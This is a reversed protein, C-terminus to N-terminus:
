FDGQRGEAEAETEHPADHQGQQEGSQAQGHGDEEGHRGQRHQHHQGADGHGHTSRENGQRKEKRKQHDRHEGDVPADPRGYEHGHQRRISQVYPQPENGECQSPFGSLQLFFYCHSPILFILM